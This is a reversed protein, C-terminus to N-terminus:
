LTEISLIVIFSIGPIPISIHKRFRKEKQMKVSLQFEYKDTALTIKHYGKPLKLNVEADFLTSKSGKRNMGEVIYNKTIPNSKFLDITKTYSNVKVSLEFSVRIFYSLFDNKTLDILFDDYKVTRVKNHEITDALIEFPVIFNERSIFSRWVEKSDKDKFFDMDLDIDEVEDYISQTPEEKGKTSATNALLFEYADRILCFDEILGGHDPHHKLSLKRFATKVEKKTADEQLNLIRLADNTDMTKAPIM